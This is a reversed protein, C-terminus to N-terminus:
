KKWAEVFGKETAKNIQKETLKPKKQAHEAFVGFLTDTLREKKAPIIKIGDEDTVVEVMDGVSIDYKKRLSAPIVIQGKNFVKMRM